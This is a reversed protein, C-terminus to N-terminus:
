IFKIGLFLSDVTITYEGTASLLAATLVCTIGIM